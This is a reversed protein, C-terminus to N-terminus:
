SALAIQDVFKFFLNRLDEAIEEFYEGNTVRSLQM